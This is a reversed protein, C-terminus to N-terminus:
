IAQKQSKKNNYTEEQEEQITALIFNREAAEKYEDWLMKVGAEAAAWTSWNLNKLEQVNLLVEELQDKTLDWEYVGQAAEKIERLIYKAEKLPMAKIKTSM